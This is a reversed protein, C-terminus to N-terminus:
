EFVVGHRGAAASRDQRVNMLLVAGCVAFIIFLSQLGFSALILLPIKLAFAILGNSIGLSNVFENVRPWDTVLDFTSFFLVLTTAAKIGGQAFRVTFLEILTPLFTAGTVFWSANTAYTDLAPMGANSLTGSLVIMAKETWVATSEVDFYWLWPWMLWCLFLLVAAMVGASIGRIPRMIGLARQLNEPLDMLDYLWNM